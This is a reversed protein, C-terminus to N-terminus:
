LLVGAPAEMIRQVQGFQKLELKVSLAIPNNAIGAPNPWQEIPAESSDIFHIEFLEVEDLVVATVPEEAIGQDLSLWHRRILQNDEVLYQVRQLESRKHQLLNNWGSRTFSISNDAIVINSQEDGYQDLIKRTSVQMWDRNLYTLAFQLQSLQRNSRGVQDGIAAIHTLGPYAIVMMVAFIAVAIVMEILTFGSKETLRCRDM